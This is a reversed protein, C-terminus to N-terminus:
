AVSLKEAMWDRAERWDRRVTRSTMGLYIATEDETMGSFYRADVVRMWRPNFRALKELLHNIGVIQEPTESFEYMLSEGDELSLSATGNGRKISLKKRAHDVIVCRMALAACRIFHENSAWSNKKELKLYTENLIDTTRLTEGADMRRRKSRAIKTLTEYHEVVLNNATEREDPSYDHLMEQTFDGETDSFELVSNVEDGYCIKWKPSSFIYNKV